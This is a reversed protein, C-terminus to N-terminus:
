ASTENTVLTKGVSMQNWLHLAACASSPSFDDDSIGARSFGVVLM